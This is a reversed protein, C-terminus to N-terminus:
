GQEEMSVPRDNRLEAFLKEAKATDWKVASGRSTSFGPGSVPVNLQRGDGSSVSSMAQFLSALKPLEMDQDVVLTDLAASLAPYVRFPDLATGPAAAKRALASLFKRQNRSRGLDGEAEQHRQRVFALAQAGNLNHCGKRLNLGSKPDTIDRDGCMEVGGVADVVGVFGAFGIEAYHDIRLGTSLEITRVLLRPGGLSYAANLKNKAPRYRKGTEPDLYSPLTVWSDRPLSVMTTGHAGTHLLMMSDTRSGGGGGAHLDKRTRESLGDRSDSGVILYTTGKGQPPRGPGGLDVARDLRFDAWAYTGLGTLLLACLLLALLRAVRRRRSPRVWRPRTSHTHGGGAREDYPRPAPEQYPGPIHEEYPRAEGTVVDGTVVQGTVVEGTVVQGTIVHPARTDRDSM